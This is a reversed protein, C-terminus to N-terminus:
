ILRGGEGWIGLLDEVFFGQDNLLDCFDEDSLTGEQLKSVALSRQLMLSIEAEAEEPDQGPYWLMPVALTM